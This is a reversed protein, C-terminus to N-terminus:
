GRSSSFGGAEPDVQHQQVGFVLSWMVGVVRFKQEEFGELGGDGGM